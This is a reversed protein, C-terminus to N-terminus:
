SRVKIYIRTFRVQFEDGINLFLSDQLGPRIDKVAHQVRAYGGFSGASPNTCDTVSSRFEDLHAHVDNIQFFPINYNGQEDISRKSLARESLLVDEAAAIAVAWSLLSLSSQILKM